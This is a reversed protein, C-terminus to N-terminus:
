PWAARQKFDKTVKMGDAFVQVYDGQRAVLALGVNSESSALKVGPMGDPTILRFVVSSERTSGDAERVSPDARYVTISARVRGNDDVVELHRTRVVDSVETRAANAHPLQSVSVGACAVNLVTIAVLFRQSTTM